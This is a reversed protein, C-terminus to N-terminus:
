ISYSYSNEGSSAVSGFTAIPSVSGFSIKKFLRASIYEHIDLGRQPYLRDAVVREGLYIVLYRFQFFLTYGWNIKTYTVRFFGCRTKYAVMRFSRYILM